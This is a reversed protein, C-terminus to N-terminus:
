GSELPAPVWLHPLLEDRRSHLHTQVRMLVDALYLEPNRGNAECTAVLSYLGALNRGAQDNGVFLWNKRGLAVRRLAREAANNDLPIKANTLFLNLEDWQNLAYRIAEGMPGKPMHRFQEKRLWKGFAEMLPKSKEQRLRLHAETRSIGLALAEHEVAYVARLQNMAIQAEPANSWADFFKRRVHALCGGRERGDPTTVPNYGSYGDVVLTGKSAGLVESPTQGSRDPSFRYCILPEPEHSLFTWIYARRTKEPAMVRVPTEDAQVMEKEAVLEVLRTSLPELLEAARHFQDMMTSRSLYVGGREYMKELRYHPISDACKAVVIHAILGPGYQAKDYVRAPPDATIVGEGCKCTLVEQVHVQREFKERLREYLETIKGEGLPRLDRSGCAPCCRKEDPILHPIRREPIAHKQEARAKRKLQTAEPDPGAEAQLERHVSPLKESKKGFVHRQLLALQAQMKTMEESIKQTEATLKQAEAQLAVAYDRWGCQHSDDPPPLPPM